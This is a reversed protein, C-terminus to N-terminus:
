NAPLQSLRDYSEFTYEATYSVQSGTAAPLGLRQDLLDTLPGCGTVAPTPFTSSASFRILPPNQSLWTSPGSRVLHLMVPQADTGIRCDAGLLPSDLRFSLPLESPDGGGYLAASSGYQTQVGLGFLGDAGDSDDSGAPNDLGGASDSGALGDASGFLGGPVPTPRDKLAGFVMGFSGDPMPGEAHVMTMPRLAPLEVSGLTLQGDAM